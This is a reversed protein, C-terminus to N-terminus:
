MAKRGNKRKGTIIYVAIGILSAFSFIEAFRWYWPEKFSVTFAGKYGEPIQVCIRSSDGARIEMEDGNQDVAHYGRYMMLPVEIEQTGGLNNNVAVTVSNYARSWETVELAPDSLTLGSVLSSLNPQSKKGGSETKIPLYEGNGISFSDLNALDYRYLDREDRDLEGTLTCLQYINLICLLVMFGRQITKNYSFREASMCSLWALFFIGMTLFRFPFQISMMPDHLFPFIRDIEAYPFIRTTMLLTLICFIFCVKEEQRRVYTRNVIYVLLVIVFSMGIGFPVDDISVYMKDGFLLAANLGSKELKTISDELPYKLLFDGRMYDLLPVVFAATLALTGAVAKVFVFFTQKKFVKKVQWLCVLFTFLTVIETTLVHSYILATFGAMLPIWTKKYRKDEVDLTFIDYLAMAIVPIFAVALYEGVAARVYVDMLRYLSVSYMCSGFLGIYRDGSMKKFCFYSTCVTVINVAIAFCKYANQISVGMIRLLAPFYLFLDGYFVSVAYGHGNNWTPQIKVPFVHSLIGDKIGEIRMLHFDLDHAYSLYDETLPLCLVLALVALGAVTVKKQVDKEWLEKNVYIFACINLLLLLTFVKLIAYRASLYSTQIHIGRVLLYGEEQLGKGLMARIEWPRDLEMNWISFSVQNAGGSFTIDSSISHNYNGDSYVAQVIGPTNTEYEMTIHYIGKGMNIEPSVVYLDNGSFSLQYYAANEREKSDKQRNLLLDEQAFDVSAPEKAMVMVAYVMFCIIEALLFLVKGKKSKLLKVGKGREM